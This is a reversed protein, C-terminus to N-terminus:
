GVRQLIEGRGGELIDGSYRDYDAALSTKEDIWDCLPALHRLLVRLFTPQYRLAFDFHPGPFPGEAAAGLLVLTGRKLGIGVLEVPTSGLVLTGALMERATGSGTNGQVAIIGRRMREGLLRGANGAILLEGGTMGRISGPPPGGAHDGVSGAITIRGGRMGRGVGAGADGAVEISGGTMGFGVDDGAAGLIKLTGRSWGSGLGHVQATPGAWEVCLEPPAEATSDASIAQSTDLQFLEMFPLSLGNHEIPTALATAFDGDSLHTFLEAPLVVSGSWEQRAEVRVRSVSNPNTPLTDPMTIKPLMEGPLINEPLM